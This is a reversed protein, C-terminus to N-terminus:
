RSNRSLHVLHGWFSRTYASCPPAGVLIWSDWIENNQEVVLGKRTVFSRRFIEKLLLCTLPVVTCWIYTDSTDMPGM